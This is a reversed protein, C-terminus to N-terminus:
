SENFSYGVIGNFDNLAGYVDGFADEPTTWLDFYTL